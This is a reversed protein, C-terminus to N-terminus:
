KNQQHTNRLNMNVGFELVFRFIQLQHIKKKLCVCVVVFLEYGITKPAAAAVAVDVVALLNVSRTSFKM